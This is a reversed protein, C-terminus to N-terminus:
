SMLEAVRKALKVLQEEQGNKRLKSLPKSPDNISQFESLKHETFLCPELILPLITADDDEAAKLLAPLEIKDIFDSALFDTSVLLIAVKASSLEKVIEAKWEMGSKIQTDDWSNVTIDLKEVVKLHAQVRELWKKNKHSHSIFAKERKLKKPMGIVEDILGRVNVMQYSKGCEVEKRGKELRRKLDRFEYFYLDTDKACEECHCPIMKDVKMKEFQSNIQDLNETIITMFDRKNKGSIRIKIKRADYTEIIQAATKERELVVGHMWVQDHNSIYPNMQVTFQSMIGKPMFIDYEYRLYLNDKEDWDYKPQTPLLREPVIYEGSNEIEYTLFFKKMLRLLEDRILEYEDERWITNADERNFRGNKKQNLLEHDLIKYVANTAWNPKLFITKKLLDDDQFHLFVGIDHFYQSLTLADKPKTIGNNKCITLYDQLTITNSQNKELAERVVTWKAPVSSGIHPLQSVYYKIAREL